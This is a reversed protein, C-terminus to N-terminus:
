LCLQPLRRTIGEWLTGFVTCTWLDREQGCPQPAERYCDPSMETASCMLPGDCEVVEGDTPRSIGDCDYDFRRNGVAGNIPEGFGRMQGPFVLANSDNCDGERLSWGEQVEGICVLVADGAGVGDGDGDMFVPHLLGEDLAGDCNNDREDCIEVGGPFCEMCDDDCDGSQEVWNLGCEDRECAVCVEDDQGFGDGDRDRFFTIQAHEDVRGDCDDDIGNCSEPFSQCVDANAGSDFPVCLGGDTALQGSPCVPGGGGCSAVMYAVIVMLLRLWM